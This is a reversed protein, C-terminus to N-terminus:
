REDEKIFSHIGYEISQFRYLDTVAMKQLSNKELYDEEKVDNRTQGMSGVGDGSGRLYQSTVLSEARTSLYLAKKSKTRPPDFLTSGNSLASATQLYEYILKSKSM